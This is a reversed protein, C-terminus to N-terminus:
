RGILERYTLPSTQGSRSVLDNFRTPMKRRNFRHSFENLYRHLHKASIHHFSGVVGRKFLSFASEIGNTTIEGEAWIKKSHNVTFHKSEDHGALRIAGPYAGLEDTMIAEVDSRVHLKICQALTELRADQTHILRLDGDRQKIGVVVEKLEKRKKRWGAGVGYAKGGIYTEDM